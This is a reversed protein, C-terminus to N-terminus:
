DGVTKNILIRLDDCKKADDPRGNSQYHLRTFALCKNIEPARLLAELEAIRQKDTKMQYALSLRGWFRLREFGKENQSQNEKESNRLHEPM